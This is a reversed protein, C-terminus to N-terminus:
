TDALADSRAACIFDNRTLGGASHTSWTVTCHDYGVDLDPHHDERNAIWALANVFGITAHFDKFAFRREIAGDKRTWKPIAAILAAVSGADLAAADPKCHETALEAHTPKM